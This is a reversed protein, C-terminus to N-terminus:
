PIIFSEISVNNTYFYKIIRQRMKMFVITNGYISYKVNGSKVEILNAAPETGTFDVSNLSEESCKTWLVRLTDIYDKESRPEFGRTKLLAKLSNLTGNLMENTTLYYGSTESVASLNAKSRFSIETPSYTSAFAATNHDQNVKSIGSTRVEQM